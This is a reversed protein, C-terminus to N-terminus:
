KGGFKGGLINQCLISDGIRFGILSFPYARIQYFLLPIFNFFIPPSYLPYPSVPSPFIKVFCNEVGFALILITKYLLSYMHSIFLFVCKSRIQPSLSRPCPSFVPGITKQGRFGVYHHNQSFYSINISLRLSIFFMSFLQSGVKSSYNLTL